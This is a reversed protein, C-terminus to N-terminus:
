QLVVQDSLPREIVREVRWGTPGILASFVGLGRPRTKPTTTKRLHQMPEDARTISGVVAILGPQSRLIKLNSVIELDSGYEFLGGESSCITVPDRLETQDLLRLIEEARSWNYARPQLSIRLGHLPAGEQSLAALAAKGFEPGTDDIDLVDIQVERQNFVGPHDRNMLLVANLSDMAPGGAINLFRLPRDPASRIIPPLTEALLQAMDQLRLRVCFSPLAAAIHRDIPKSYASGLMDPGLKLLYTHLGSMFSTRAQDIGQALVSQRLLFQLAIERVWKPLKGLPVGTCLFTKVLEKQGSDSISIAFAPHTVDVIPLEIGDGTFAYFVGPRKNTEVRITQSQTGSVM